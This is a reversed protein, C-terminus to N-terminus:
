KLPIMNYFMDLMTKDRKDAKDRMKIGDISAQLIDRYDLLTIEIKGKELM